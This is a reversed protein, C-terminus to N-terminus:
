KIYWDKLNVQITDFPGTATAAALLTTRVTSVLKM